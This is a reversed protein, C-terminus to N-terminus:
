AKSAPVEALYLVPGTPAGTPSGGSPELSVAFAKADEPVLGEPLPRTPADGRLLGLSIPADDNSPLLWLEYDKDAQPQAGLRTANMTRERWDVLLMWQPPQAEGQMLLSYVPAPKEPPAILPTVVVLVLGLVAAATLGRWLMLSRWWISDVPKDADDLQQEIARWVSMPPTVEGDNYAVLREEWAVVRRRLEADDRLRQEFASRSDGQLTGLVYEGAEIDLNDRSDAM